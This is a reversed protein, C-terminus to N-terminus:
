VVVLKKKPPFTAKWGVGEVVMLAKGEAWREVNPKGM